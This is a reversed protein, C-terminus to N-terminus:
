LFEQPIQEIYAKFWPVVSLKNKLESITNNNFIDSSAKKM